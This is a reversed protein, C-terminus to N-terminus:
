GFVEIGCAMPFDEGQDDAPVLLLATRFIEFSKGYSESRTLDYLVYALFVKSARSLRSWEEMAAWVVKVGLAEM